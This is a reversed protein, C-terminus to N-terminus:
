QGFFDLAHCGFASWRGLYVEVDEVEEGASPKQRRQERTLVTAAEIAQLANSRLGALEIM